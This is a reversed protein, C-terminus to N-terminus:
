PKSLSPVEDLYARSQAVQQLYDAIEEDRRAADWGHLERLRDAVADAASVAQDRTESFLHLRRM